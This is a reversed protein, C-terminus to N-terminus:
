QGGNNLLKKCRLIRCGVDYSSLTLISSYKNAWIGNSLEEHLRKLGNEAYENEMSTYTSNAQRVNEDMLLFPNRWISTFFMDKFDHPLKFVIEEVKNKFISEIYSVLKAIPSYVKDAYDHLSDWYDYLWVKKLIIPDFTFILLTGSKMIRYIEAIAKEVNYFHHIANIVIAGDVIENPLEIEEAYSKIWKISTNECQAMMADSPEIAFVEYGYNYLEISYNGIGAGIDAISSGKPLGLLDVVKNTLRNDPKRVTKYLQADKEYNL